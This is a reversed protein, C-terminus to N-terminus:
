KKMKLYEEQLMQHKQLLSELHSDHLRHECERYHLFVDDVSIAEILEDIERYM